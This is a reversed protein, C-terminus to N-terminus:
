ESEFVGSGGSCGGQFLNSFIKIKLEENFFKFSGTEVCLRAFDLNSSPNRM